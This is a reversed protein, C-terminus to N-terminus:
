ALNFRLEKTRFRPDQAGARLFEAIQRALVEALAPPVANGIQATVAEQNGVFRFSDPFSQLRAGERLTINRNQIPHGFRGRTFSDFRATITAAPAKPSLRGYVYRHGIEGAGNRHCNARLEKPLSEFGGGPPILAIREENLPSLKTRFHLPDIAHTRSPPEPLDGIAQMVTKQGSGCHTATPFQFNHDLEKRWGVFFVRKRFQPVGYDAANLIASTIEYGGGRILDYFRRLIPRGRGGMVGVVNEMLFARPALAVVLKGYELVLNNRPDSDEGIRQISFGQCPPGGAILDIAPWSHCELGILRQPTLATVDAKVARHSFNRKYSEIAVDWNDVAAVIQFGARQLGLSLGGCGCFLDLAVLSDQM